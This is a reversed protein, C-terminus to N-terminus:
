NCTLIYDFTYERPEKLLTSSTSFQSVIKLKYDGSHLDVPVIFSVKSPNNILINTNRVPIIDENDQSVLFIGVISEDGAIKIKSGALNVGGGPTLTKNVEGTTIDTVSNIIVGVSAMGLVNVTAESVIKRVLTSPTANVVLSHVKPEWKAHDGMFVGKVDINFYGLGFHVNHGNSICDIATTKLTELSARLTAASIDTRRAVALNIIDDETFSGVSVVKGCRDDKRDTITLNYLEVNIIRNDKAM